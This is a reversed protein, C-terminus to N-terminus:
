LFLNRLNIEFGWVLLPVPSAALAITLITYIPRFLRSFGATFLIGGGGGILSNGPINVLVALLLYRFRTLLPRALRPVHDRLYDLRMDRTMPQLAELLKGPGRLRLDVLADRLKEYPLVQGGVYALSLGCVTSLYIFPAIWPGEIMMLSLGIEVGPVFPVAILLAYILLFLALLGFRMGVGGTQVQASAWIMAFHAGLALGLIVGLRM